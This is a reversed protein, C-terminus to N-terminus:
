ISLIDLIKQIRGPPDGSRERSKRGVEGVEGKGEERRKEM